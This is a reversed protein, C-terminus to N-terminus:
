SKYSTPTEEEELEAELAENDLDYYMEYFLDTDTGKLGVFHAFGELDDYETYSSM